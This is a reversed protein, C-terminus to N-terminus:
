FSICDGKYNGGFGKRNPPFRFREAGCMKFKLLHGCALSFTSWVPVSFHMCKTTNQSVSRHLCSYAAVTHVM